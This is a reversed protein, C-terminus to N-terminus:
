KLDDANLLTYTFRNGYLKRHREALQILLNFDDADALVQCGASYKDIYKTVGNDAAKHINIGFLGTEQKKLNYDAFDDKNNDRWITVPSKQILARYKRRHMGLQYCDIYQGPKLIATGAPNMPNRLWATGPDTTAAFIKIEWTKDERMYMATICDDFYNPRAKADRIGIINLEFPRNYLKLGKKNIYDLIYNTMYFFKLFLGETSPSDM